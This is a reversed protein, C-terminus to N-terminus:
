SDKRRLQEGSYIMCLGRFQSDNEVVYRVEGDLKTFVSIVIGDFPYGKAKQVHDGVSFQDSM